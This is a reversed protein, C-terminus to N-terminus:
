YKYTLLKDIKFSVSQAIRDRCLWLVIYYPVLVALGGLAAAGEGQGLWLMLAVVVLLLLLPFGFGLLLAKGAAAGSTSVMVSDGVGLGAPPAQHVDIIKEKSESASCHSAIKCGACASTQLIRVQIHTGEIREVVGEHRITNDM